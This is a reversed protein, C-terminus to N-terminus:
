SSKFQQTVGKVTTLKLEIVYLRDV